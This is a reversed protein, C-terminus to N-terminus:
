IFYIVNPQNSVAHVYSNFRTWAIGNWKTMEDPIFIPFLPPPTDLQKQTCLTWILKKGICEIQRSCHGTNTSCLWIWHIETARHLSVHLLSSFYFSFFFTCCSLPQYFFRILSIFLCPFFHLPIYNPFLPFQDQSHFGADFPM